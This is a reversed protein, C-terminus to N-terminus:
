TLFSLVIFAISLVLELLILLTSVPLTTKINPKGRKSVVLYALVSTVWAIVLGVGVGHFYANMEIMM